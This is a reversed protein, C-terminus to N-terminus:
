AGSTRRPTASWVTGEPKPGKWLELYLRAFSPRPEAPDVLGGLHIWPVEPNRHHALHHHYNLFLAQVVRNVRLNWAGETVHRVSFAHDTYQLAGWNLAFAAYCTMWGALSVGLVAFLAAQFAITFVIELRIRLAHRSDDLDALMADGGMRQVRDSETRRLVNARLLWPCLLYLLCGLPALTWYVGTLIGYLQITKLIRSDGPYYLDFMEVDSRNRRHHGLHCVRQFTFGTPFFAASLVGMGDNLWRKRSFAGHVSEHLLSFITNAVFSFAVACGIRVSWWSTRSAAVLLGAAAGYSAAAILLNLRVPPDLSPLTRSYRHPSPM